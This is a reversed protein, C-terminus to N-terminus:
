NVTAPQNVTLLYGRKGANACLTRGIQTTVGEAEHIHGCVFHEPQYRELFERIARSGAHVGKRVQDLPTGMPPCHCILILPKLAAFAGLRRAIEEETYEGPTHFPTPNSYGFGALHYGGAEISKGHFANLGYKACFAAIQEDWEHNGPLVYAQPGRARLIEGCRDLGRGWNALDGAAVYYDAETEMLRELAAYDGHVDSFVLVKM